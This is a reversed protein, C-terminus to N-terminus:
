PTLNPPYATGTPSPVGDNNGSLISGHCQMCKLQKVLDLGVAIQADDRTADAAGCAGDNSADFPATADSAGGDPPFASQDPGDDGSCAHLPAGICWGILAVGLRARRM